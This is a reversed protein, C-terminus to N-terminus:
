ADENVKYYLHVTQFLICWSLVGVPFMLMVSFIKDGPIIHNAIDNAAAMIIIPVWFLLAKWICITGVRSLNKYTFM